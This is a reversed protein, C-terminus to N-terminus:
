RDNKLFERLWEKSAEYREQEADCRPPPVNDDLMQRIDDRRMGMATLSARFVDASIENAHYQAGCDAMQRKRDEFDIVTM